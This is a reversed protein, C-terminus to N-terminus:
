KVIGGCNGAAAENGYFVKGGAKEGYKELDVIDLVELIRADSIGLTWTRVKLNDVASLNEYVPPLEIM